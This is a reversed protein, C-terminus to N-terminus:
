PRGWPDEPGADPAGFSGPAATGDWPDAATTSMAPTGGDPTIEPLLDPARSRADAVVEDIKAQDAMGAFLFLISIGTADRLLLWHQHVALPMRALPGSRGPTAGSAVATGPPVEVVVHPDLPNRLMTVRLTVGDLDLLRTGASPVPVPQLRQDAARIALEAGTEAALVSRGEIRVPVRIALLPNGPIRSRWWSVWWLAALPLLIGLALLGVLWGILRTTDAAKRMDAVYPVSVDLPEAGPESSTLTFTVEGSATGNGIASPTLLLPVEAEDGAAIEVCQEAAGADSTVAIDVGEPATDVTAGPVWVCGPGAVRVTAPLPDATETTGFDIVETQVSPYNAPPLVDIRQQTVQPALTTGPYRRGDRGTAPATTVDLTMILEGRSPAVQSLNVSVPQTGEAPDASDLIPIAQGDALRLVASMAVSSELSEPDVADDSGRRAIVFRLDDVTEGTRWQSPTGAQTQMVLDGEVHINTRALAGDPADDRFFTIEWVGTWGDDAQPDTPRLVIEAASTSVWQWSMRVGPLDATGDQEALVTPRGQPGRVQISTGPLDSGALIRVSRISSDLVVTHTGKECASGRCIPKEQQLPPQNPDSLADFAFILDGINRALIFMGMGARQISGCRPDDGGVAISRVLGFDSRDGSGQLGVVFLKVDSKRLQDVLGGQRCLSERGLREAERAGDAGSLDVGPAYPKREDANGRPEIDFRGDTFMVIAQCRPGASGRAQDRLARRAGELATWYDTDLGTDQDRLGDIAALLEGANGDRVSRWGTRTVYEADFGAVSISLDVDNEAAFTALRSVLYRAAQVRQADPDTQQLSGSQDVLLVIDGSGQATMCSGLEQVATTDNAAAAPPALALGPLLATLAALLALRAPMAPLAFAAGPRRHPPLARLPAATSM